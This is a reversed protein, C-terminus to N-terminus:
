EGVLAEATLEAFTGQTGTYQIKRDKDLVYVMPWTGVRYEKALDNNPDSFNRWTVSGNKKMARLDISPDHNVGLVEIPKSAFKEVMANTIEITRDADPITSSWFMLVIVKGKYDSLRIPNGSSDVGVLDPAVRGKSLHLIIYLENEALQAVTTNGIVVDSSEIIAKRIFPIRRQILEKDDGMSRLSMAVGLAAVGQIKVDPNTSEIDELIKLSIPDHIQALAMCMPTLKPSKIHHQSVAKRIAKTQELWAKAADADPPMYTTQMQLLWAAPKLTWDRELSPQLARWMRGIYLNPQPRKSIAVDRQEPTDAAKLLTSWDDM